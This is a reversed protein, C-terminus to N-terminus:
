MLVECLGTFITFRMTTGVRNEGSFYIGEGERQAPGERERKRSLSPGAAARRSPSPAHGM